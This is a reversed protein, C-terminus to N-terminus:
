CIKKLMLERQLEGVHACVARAKFTKSTPCLPPLSDDAGEEEGAEVFAWIEKLEKVGGAVLARLFTAGLIGPVIYLLAPQATNFVNMVAITTAM